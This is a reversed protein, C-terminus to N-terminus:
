DSKFLNQVIKNENNGHSHKEKKNIDENDWKAHTDLCLSAQKYAYSTSCCTTIFPFVEFAEARVSIERKYSEQSDEIAFCECKKKAEIM